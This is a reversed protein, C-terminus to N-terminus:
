NVSIHEVTKGYSRIEDLAHHFGQEFETKFGMYQKLENIVNDIDYATYIIINNEYKDKKLQIIIANTIYIGAYFKTCFRYDVVDEKPIESIRLFQEFIEKEKM